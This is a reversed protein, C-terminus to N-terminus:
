SSSGPWAPSAPAAPRLQARIGDHHVPQLRHRDTLRHGLGPRVRDHVLHGCNGHRVGALRIHLVEIPPESGGAPQAGLPRVVQSVTGSAAGCVADAEASMLTNVCTALLERLLDPSVQALQEELLRAHDISATVTM